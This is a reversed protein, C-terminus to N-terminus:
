AKKDDSQHDSMCMNDPSVALFSVHLFCVGGRKSQTKGGEGLKVFEFNDALLEDYTQM